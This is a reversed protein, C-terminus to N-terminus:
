GRTAGAPEIDHRRVLLTVGVILHALVALFSAPNADEGEPIIATGTLITFDFLGHIVSNLVNSGSVRRMLYFLSGAFSM